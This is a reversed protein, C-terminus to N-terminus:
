GDIRKLAIDFYEKEKEIGIFDFGLRKASVGTSGSGMFPDLVIGNPPTILKILYEMLKTSKVTPHNNEAGRDSKSAKAVYFFRSAGGFDGFRMGNGKHNGIGFMSGDDNTQNCKGASRKKGASHMGNELSHEDLGKVACDEHCQWDQVTETGDGNGHAKWNPQVGSKQHTNKFRSSTEPANINGGAAKVKKTGVLECEAHHSLILNAPFRGLTSPPPPTYEGKGGIYNNGKINTGKVRLMGTIDERSTGIRCGDINLGGTGHKLVNGAITKESIPKRVLIWSEHAPKLATGFGKVKERKVKGCECCRLGNQSANRLTGQSDYDCMLKKKDIHKELNTSKPFGQGFLNVVIDRIEFGADELAIATWHSTRPLAWVLGHAGPKLVRLCEQFISMLWSTWATRGSSSSDWDKGMFGIGAPPDTVLSDCSNTDMTKLHELCDANILNM